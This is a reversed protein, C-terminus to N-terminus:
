GIYVQVREGSDGETVDVYLPTEASTTEALAVM